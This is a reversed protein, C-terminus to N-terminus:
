RAVEKAKSGALGFFRHGSIHTGTIARAAASLSRFRAGAYAFGDELITVIVTKGKYLRTLQTGPTLAAAATVRMTFPVSREVTHGDGDAHDGNRPATTRLDSDRALELAQDRVRQPLDGEADAQLRWAIRKIMFRRNGSRSPECFVVLYKERLQSPTMAELAALQAQINLAEEPM